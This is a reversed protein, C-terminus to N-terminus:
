KMENRIKSLAVVGTSMAFGSCHERFGDPAFISGNVEALLLEPKLVVWSKNVDTHNQLLLIVDDSKMNEAIDSVECAVPLM